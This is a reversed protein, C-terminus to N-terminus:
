VRFSLCFLGAVLFIITLRLRKHALGARHNNEWSALAYQSAVDIDFQTQDEKGKDRAIAAFDSYSVPCSSQIKWRGLLLTVASMLLFSLSLIYWDRSAVWGIAVLIGAFLKEGREDVSKMGALSDEYLTKAYEKVEGVRTVGYTMKDLMRRYDERDLDHKFDYDNCFYWRVFTNVRKFFPTSRFEDWTQMCSNVNHDFIQRILDLPSLRFM